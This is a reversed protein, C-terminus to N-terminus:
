GAVEGFVVAVCRGVYLRTSIHSMSTVLSLACYRGMRVKKRASLGFEELDLSCGIFRCEPLM